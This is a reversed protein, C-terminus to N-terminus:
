PQNHHARHHPDLLSGRPRHAAFIRALSTLQSGRPNPRAAKELIEFMPRRQRVRHTSGCLVAAAADLGLTRRGIENADWERAAAWAADFADAALSARLRAVMTEWRAQLHPSRALHTSARLRHAAAALGCARSADGLALALAAHDEVCGVWPGRMEFGAFAVLADRLRPGAAEFRGARLDLRGLAWQAHAVGRRDGAASCVALSRQFRREAMAEEGVEM